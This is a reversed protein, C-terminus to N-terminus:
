KKSKRKKRLPPKTIVVGSTGIGYKNPIKEVKFLKGLIEQIYEELEKQSFGKQFTKNSGSGFLWGDLHPIANKSKSAQTAVDKGRTTIIAVGKNNILEGIQAVVNAREFPDEIVNLVNLNVVADKSAKGEITLVDDISKYTPVKGGSQLIKEDPVFPEHSTVKKNTFQKTGVGTGSGFDHVSKLKKDSLIKNVKKYTGVTTNIATNARKIAFKTALKTAGEYM